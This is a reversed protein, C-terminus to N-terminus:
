ISAVAAKERSRWDAPCNAAVFRRLEEVRWLVRGGLKVPRPVRGSAHLRSWSSVSVSCLASAGKADVLLRHNPPVHGNITDTPM